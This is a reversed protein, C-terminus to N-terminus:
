KRLSTLWEADLGRVSKGTLDQFIDDRYKGERMLKNLKLVLDQDYKKSVFALFTASTRYGQDYHVRSPDVPGAKGPEFVFFRVYDAVGEVLWGPNRRGRYNQIVHCTEHIMAGLDDPHAQFYRVSGTIQSGSAEAVGKYDRKMKLSVQSPPRYGDAKLAENLRPYWRECLRAADTAWAKMEPADTVDVSFEVPYAFPKLDESLKLDIERIVLPHGTNGGPRIRLALLERGEGVFRARSERFKAVEEFTKGDVSIELIGGDLIDAGDPRGTVVEVRDLRSKRDLALTFHDEAKPVGASAFFRRLTAM